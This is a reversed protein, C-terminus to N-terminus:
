GYTMEYEGLHGNACVMHLVSNGNADRVDALSEPGFKRQFEQIEDLDGYRCSLLLDDKDDDTLVM